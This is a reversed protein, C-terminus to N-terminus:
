FRLRPLSFSAGTFIMWQAPSAGVGYADQLAVRTGLDVQAARGARVSFAAEGVAIRVAGPQGWQVSQAAGFQTRLVLSSSATWSLLANGQLREDVLGSLRDVVPALRASLVLEVLPAPDRYQIAAEGLAYPRSSWAGGDATRAVVLSAGGGLTMASRRSFAHRWREVAEGLVNDQGSSFLVRSADIASILSDRRSLAHAASFAAHPGSQSPVLARSAADAGGSLAHEAQVRFTWRRAPAFTATVGARSSLYDITSLQPLRDVQPHAPDAGEIPVLSTFSTAGYALDADLALEYRPGHLAASLAGRQFVEPEPRYDVQRLTFRPLYAISFRFARSRLSLTAAPSTELDVVQGALEGSDRLRLESRDSVDLTGSIAAAVLLAAGLSM